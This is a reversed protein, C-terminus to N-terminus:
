ALGIHRYREDTEIRFQAMQRCYHDGQERDLILEDCASCFDGTVATFTTSSGKYTYTVERADRILEASGCCPCKM